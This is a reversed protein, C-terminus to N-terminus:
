STWLPDVKSYLFSDVYDFLEGRTMSEVESNITMPTVMTIYTSDGKYPPTSELCDDDNESHHIEIDFHWQPTDPDLDDHWLPSHYIPRVVKKAQTSSDLDKVEYEISFIDVSSPNDIASLARRNKAAKAWVPASPSSVQVIITENMLDSNDRLGVQDQQFDDDSDDYIPPDDSTSM